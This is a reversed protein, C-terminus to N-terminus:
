ALFYKELETKSFPLSEDNEHSRMMYSNCKNKSGIVKCKSLNLRMLWTNSWDKIKDIDKQMKQTDEDIINKRIRALIKTDNAHMKVTNTLNDPLDNIYIIFFILLFVSGQSVGSKIDKWDSVDDRDSVDEVITM